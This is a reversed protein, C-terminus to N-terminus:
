VDDNKKGKHGELLKSIREQVPGLMERKLAEAHRAFGMERDLRPGPDCEACWCKRVARGVGCSKCLM